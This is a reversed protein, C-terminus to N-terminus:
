STSTITSTITSTSSGSSNSKEHKSESTEPPNEASSNKNSNNGSRNELISSNIRKNSLSTVNITKQTSQYTDFIEKQNLYKNRESKAFINEIIGIEMAILRHISNANPVNIYVYTNKKM